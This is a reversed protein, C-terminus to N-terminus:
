EVVPENYEVKIDEDDVVEFELTESENLYVISFNYFKLNRGINLPNKKGRPIMVKPKWM